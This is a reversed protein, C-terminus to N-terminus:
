DSGPAGDRRRVLIGVIPGAANEDTAVPQARHVAVVDARHKILEWPYMPTRGSVESPTLYYYACPGWEGAAIRDEALPPWATRKAQLLVMNTLGTHVCETEAVHAAIDGVADDLGKLYHLEAMGTGKRTTDLWYRTTRFTDLEPVPLPRWLQRASSLVSPAALLLLTTVFLAPASLKTTELWTGALAAGSYAFYFWFPLVAFLFRDIIDLFPWVAIIPCYAACYLAVYPARRLSRTFGAAALLLLAALVASQVGSLERWQLLDYAFAQWAAGTALTIQEFIRIATDQGFKSLLLDTYSLGAEGMGLPSILASFLVLSTCLVISSRIGGRFCLLLLAPILAVGVTRTAIACGVLIGAAICGIVAFRSSEVYRFALLALFSFCLYLGESWLDAVHIWTIPLLGHLVVITLAHTRPVEVTRLWLYFLTHAFMMFAAVCVRAATLQETGAGLLGLLLPFMPPLQSHARIHEYVPLGADRYPSYADTMLLYLADDAQFGVYPNNVGLYIFLAGLLMMVLALSAAESRIIM